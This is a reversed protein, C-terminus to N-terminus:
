LSVDRVVTPIGAVTTVTLLLTRSSRANRELFM